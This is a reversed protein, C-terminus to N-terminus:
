WCCIADRREGRCKRGGIGMLKGMTHVGDPQYNNERKGRKDRAFAKREKNKPFYVNKEQSGPNRGERM